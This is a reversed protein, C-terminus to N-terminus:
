AGSAGSDVRAKLARVQAEVQDKLKGRDDLTLGVTPVPEGIRVRIPMSRMRWAGKPLIKFTDHVYVPVVPVQASIALAFPTTWCNAKPSM